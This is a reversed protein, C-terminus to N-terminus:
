EAAELRRAYATPPEGAHRTFAVSFSSTSGYGVREAVEALGCARRALLDKALAMRWHLLYEMPAVGVERRFREFFVTRSLAARRALEAVTWGRAPEGHMLRLAQALREDALGRVLGPPASAGGTARLAEIFMVEILRELIVERAPRAARAEDAVLQLLTTLRGQGRVHVIQPLLSVLLAADPSGFDCHGVMLRVEPTGDPDGLRVRGPAIEVRTAEHEAGPPLRLSANIYDFAAPILVFDGAELLIPEQGRVTLRCGGELVAGYFPRGTDTRRVSWLGAAEVLKFLSPLPQLLRVMEALPDAM